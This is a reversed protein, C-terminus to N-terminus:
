VTEPQKITSTAAATLAVLANHGIEKWFMRRAPLCKACYNWSCICSLNSKMAVLHAYKSQPRECMGVSVKGFRPGAFFFDAPLAARVDGRTLGKFSSRSAKRNDRGM